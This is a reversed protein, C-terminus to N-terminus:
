PGKFNFLVVRQAWHLFEAVSMTRKAYNCISCATVSNKVTYGISNDVRDVGNVPNPAAGCYACNALILDTYAERDLGFEYGNERARDRANKFSFKAPDTKRRDRAQKNLSERYKPDLLRNQRWAKRYANQQARYEPDLLRNRAWAKKLEHRRESDEYTNTTM